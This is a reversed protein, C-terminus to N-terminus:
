DYLKHLFHLIEWLTNFEDIRIRITNKSHKIDIWLCVRPGSFLFASFSYDNVQSM